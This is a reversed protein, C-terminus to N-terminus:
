EKCKALEKMWHAECGDPDCGDEGPTVSPCNEKALIKVALNIMGGQKKILEIIDTTDVSIDTTDLRLRFRWHELKAIADENTM